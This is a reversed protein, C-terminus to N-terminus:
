GGLGDTDMGTGTGTDFDDVLGPWTVTVAEPSCSVWDGLRDVEVVADPDDEDVDVPVIGGFDDTESDTGTDFGNVLGPGPITVTVAEPRGSWDPVRGGFPDMEVGSSLEDVLHLLLVLVEGLRGPVSVSDGFGVIVVTGTGLKGPFRGEVPVILDEPSLPADPLGCDDIDRRVTM